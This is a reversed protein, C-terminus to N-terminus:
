PQLGRDERALLSLAMVRAAECLTMQPDLDGLGGARDGLDSLFSEGAIDASDSVLARLLM